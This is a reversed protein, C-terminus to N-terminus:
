LTNHIVKGAKIVLKVNALASIDALPDGDVAVLDAAAGPIVKGLDDRGLLRAGEATLAKIAQFESYGNKVLAAAEIAPQGHLGDAGVAISVGEEIAAAIMANLSDMAKRTKTQSWEPHGPAYAAHDAIGYTVVLFTGKEAMKRLQDRTLYAGHEISDIGADIAYDCGIGGHAHTAIKRGLRHAEDVAAIVEEEMYDSMNPDSNPTSMGGTIMIKIWDANHKVEERVAKRIEWPGDAEISDWWGHGGTRCIWVGSRILRPGPLMGSDFVRKWDVDLRAHEGASRLTTIGAEIIQRGRAAGRLALWPIPEQAQAIEDGPDLSLHDHCDIYGPLVTFDGLDFAIETDEPKQTGVSLISEEDITIWVDRIPSDNQGDILTKCRISKPM